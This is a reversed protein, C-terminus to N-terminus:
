QYCLLNFSPFCYSAIHPFSNQPVVADGIIIIDNKKGLLIHALICYKQTMHLAVMSSNCLFSSQLACM